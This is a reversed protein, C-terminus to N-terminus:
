KVQFESLVTRILLKGSTVARVCHLCVYIWARQDQAATLHMLLSTRYGLAGFRTLHPTIVPVCVLGVKSGGEEM